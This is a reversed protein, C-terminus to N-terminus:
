GMKRLIYYYFIPTNDDQISQFNRAIGKDLLDSKTFERFETISLGNMYFAENMEQIRHKYTEIIINRGGVRYHTHDYHHMPHVDSIFCEGGNKLIHSVRRIVNSVDFIHSLVRNCLIWDFQKQLINLECIDKVICKLKGEEIEQPYKHQCIMLMMDSIDYAAVQHGADLFCGLNNGSGAGLDAGYGSPM